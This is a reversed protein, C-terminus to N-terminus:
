PALGNSAMSFTFALIASISGYIMGAIGLSVLLEILTFGKQSAKM